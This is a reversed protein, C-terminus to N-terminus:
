GLVGGRDSSPMYLCEQITYVFIAVAISDCLLVLKGVLM